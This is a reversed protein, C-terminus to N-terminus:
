DDDEESGEETESNESDDDATRESSSARKKTRPSSSSSSTDSDSYDSYSSSTDDNEIPALRAIHSRLTAQVTELDKKLEGSVTAPTTLFAAWAKAHRAAWDGPLESAKLLADLDELLLGLRAGRRTCAERLAEDLVEPDRRALLLAHDTKSATCVTALDEVLTEADRLSALVHRRTPFLHNMMTYTKLCHHPYFTRM